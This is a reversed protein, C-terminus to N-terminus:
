EDKKEEVPVEEPKCAEQDIHNLDWVFEKMETFVLRSEGGVTSNHDDDVTPNSSAVLLAIAEPGYAGGKEEQKKLVLRRAKELSKRLDDEDDDDTFVPTYVGNVPSDDKDNRDVDM